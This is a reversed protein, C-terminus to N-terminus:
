SSRVPIRLTFRSGREFESTLLIDGKLVEAVLKSTLYLGLGTGPVIAQLPSVLREFPRFMKGLDEERIGIGTDTVSIEAVVEESMAVPSQVIRTEVTVVGKESYKVANTLLNLVCQLLRRRDTQMQQHAVEVRLELGKEELDKKVMNVAESILDSLDFEEAVSEIKGAEIKSVDIV